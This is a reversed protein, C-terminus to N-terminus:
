QRSIWQEKALQLYLEVDGSEGALQEALAHIQSDRTEILNDSREFLDQAEPYDLKLQQIDQFSLYHQQFKKVFIQRCALFQMFRLGNDGSILSVETAPLNAAVAIEIAKEQLTKALEIDNNEVAQQMGLKFEDNNLIDKYSYQKIDDSQNQSPHNPLDASLVTEPQNLQTLAIVAAVILTAVLLLKKAM